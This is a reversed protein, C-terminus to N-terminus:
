TLLSIQNNPSKKINSYNKKSNHILPINGDINQLTKYHLFLCSEM